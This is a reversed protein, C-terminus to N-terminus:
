KSRIKYEENTITNVTQRTGDSYLKIINKTARYLPYGDAVYAKAEGYSMKLVVPCKIGKSKRYFRFRAPYYKLRGGKVIHKNSHSDDDNELLDDDILRATFYIGFNNAVPLRVTKTFGHGWITSVEDNAIFLRNENGDKVLLHIHWSSSRQPECIAIYETSPYRYRFRLWFNKFDHYLKQTDTMLTSYTLTIHLESNRGSFNANVLHKLAKMSARINKKSELRHTSVQHQIVEGTYLDVM